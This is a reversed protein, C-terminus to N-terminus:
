PRKTEQRKSRPEFNVQAVRGRSRGPVFRLWVKSLPRIAGTSQAFWVNKGSGRAELIELLSGLGLIRKPGLLVLLDTCDRLAQRWGRRWAETDPFLSRSSVVEAGRRRFIETVRAYVEPTYESNPASVYLRPRM